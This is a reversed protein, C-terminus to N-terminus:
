VDDAMYEDYAEQRDQDPSGELEQGCRDCVYIKVPTCPDEPSTPWPEIVEVHRDIHECNENLRENM